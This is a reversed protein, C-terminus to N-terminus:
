EIPDRCFTNLYDGTCPGMFLTTGSNTKHCLLNKRLKWVGKVIYVEIEM